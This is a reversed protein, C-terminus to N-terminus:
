SGTRVLEWLRRIVEFVYVMLFGWLGRNWFEVQELLDGASVLLMCDMSIGLMM